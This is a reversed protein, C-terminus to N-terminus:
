FILVANNKSRECSVFPNGATRRPCYCIPSNALDCEAGIGCISCPHQCFRDICVDRGDCDLDEFCDFKTCQKFGDGTYGEDCLCVLKHDQIACRAFPHCPSKELCPDICQRDVCMSDTSCDDNYGCPIIPLCGHQPKGTYGFNCTCIHRHDIVNCVSYQGCPNYPTYCPDVCERNYCQTDITCDNDTECGDTVVLDIFM